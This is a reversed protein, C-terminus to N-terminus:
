HVLSGGAYTVALGAVEWRWSNPAWLAVREGPQLGLGVLEAATSASRTWCSSPLQPARRRRDGRARDGFRAAAARLLGPITHQEDTM